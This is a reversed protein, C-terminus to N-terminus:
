EGRDVGGLDLLTTWDGHDLLVDYHRPADSEISWIRRVAGIESLEAVLADAYADASAFGALTKEVLAPLEHRALWRMAGQRVAAEWDALETVRLGPYANEAFQERAFALADTVGGRTTRCEIGREGRSALLYDCDLADGIAAAAQRVFALDFPEVELKIADGLEREVQFECLSARHGPWEAFPVAVHPVQGMRARVPAILMEPVGWENTMVDIKARTVQDGRQWDIVAAPFAAAIREAIQRGSLKDEVRPFLAAQLELARPVVSSSM